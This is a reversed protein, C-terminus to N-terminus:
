GLLRPLLEEAVVADVRARSFPALASAARAAYTAEAESESGAATKLAELGTGTAAGEVLM